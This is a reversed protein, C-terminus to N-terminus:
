SELMNNRPRSIHRRCQQYHVWLCPCLHLSIVSTYYMPRRISSQQHRNSTGTDPLLLCRNRRRIKPEHMTPDTRIGFGKGENINAIRNMITLPSHYLHVIFWPMDNGHSIDTVTCSKFRSDTMAASRQLTYSGLGTTQCYPM